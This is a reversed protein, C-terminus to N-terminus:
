LRLDGSDLGYDGNPRQGDSQRHSYDALYSGEGWTGSVANFSSFLDRTGGVQETTGAAPADRAPARSIFNVVPQVEPGYLLGSGGRIMQVSSITQPVPLYYTTPYGIWDLELPVGDQMLLIYES